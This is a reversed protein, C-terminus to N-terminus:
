QERLRAAARRRVTEMPFYRGPCLTDKVDRHGEVNEPKIDYERCLWAVLEVTAAIQKDTPREKEFNGVLCIGIGHDNYYRVGAHSGVGQAKWRPGCEIEGNGSGTGNGIVFHYGLGGSWKLVNRHYNDFSKACGTDTASHHIIIHTWKRTGAFRWEPHDSFASVPPTQVVEPVRTQAVAPQDPMPMPGVEDLPSKYNTIPPWWKRHDPQTHQCGALVVSFIVLVALM